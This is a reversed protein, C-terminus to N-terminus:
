QLFLITQVSPSDLSMADLVNVMEEIEFSFLFQTSENYLCSFNLHDFTVSNFLNKEGSPFPAPHSRHSPVGDDRRSCM